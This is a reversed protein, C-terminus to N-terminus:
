AVRNLPAVWTNCVGLRNQGLSRELWYTFSTGKGHLSDQDQRAWARFQPEDAATWRDWTQVQLYTFCEVQLEIRRQRQNADEATSNAGAGLIGVRQQVHHGFEHFLLHVAGLRVNDDYKSLVAYDIYIVQDAGCYYAVINRWTGCPSNFSGTFYSTQPRPLTNGSQEVLPTYRQMMCDVSKEVWAKARDAQAPAAPELGPCSWRSLQIGYIPNDALVKVGLYPGTPPDVPPQSRPGPARSPTPRATPTSTPSPSQSVPSEASPTPTEVPSAPAPPPPVPVGTPVAAQQDPRTILVFSTIVVALAVAVAAIILAPRGKRRPAASPGPMPMPYPQQPHQPLQFPPAGPPAGFPNQQHQPVGPGPQGPQGAGPPPTFPSGVFPNGGGQGRFPNPDQWSM